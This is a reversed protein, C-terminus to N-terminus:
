AEFLLISIDMVFFGLFVLATCYKDNSDQLRAIPLLEKFSIYLMIGGCLALMIALENNEGFISNILLYGIIGGM